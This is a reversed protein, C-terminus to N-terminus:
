YGAFSVDIDCLFQIQIEDDPNIGSNIYFNFHILYNQFIDDCYDNLLM